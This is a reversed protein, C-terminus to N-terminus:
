RLRDGYGATSNLFVSTPQYGTPDSTRISYGSAGVGIADGVVSGLGEIAESPLWKLAM